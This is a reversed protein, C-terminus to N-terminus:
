MLCKFVAMDTRQGYPLAFDSPNMLPLAPPGHWLNPIPTFLTSAGYVRLHNPALVCQWSLTTSNPFSVLLRYLSM